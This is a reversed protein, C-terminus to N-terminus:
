FMRGSGHVVKDGPNVSLRIVNFPPYLNPKPVPM